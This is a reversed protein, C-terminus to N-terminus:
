RFSWFFDSEFYDWWIYDDIKPHSSKYACWVSLSFSPPPSLVFLWPLFWSFIDHSIQPLILGKSAYDSVAQSTSEWGEFSKLVGLVSEM